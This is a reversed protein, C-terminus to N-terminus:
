YHPPPPEDEPRRLPLDALQQQIRQIEARLAALERTHATLVEHLEDLMREQYAARTELEILRQELM